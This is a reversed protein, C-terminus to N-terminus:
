RYEGPTEGSDTQENPDGGGEEILVKLCETRGSAAAFHIATAGDQNRRLGCRGECLLCRLCEVHGHNACVHLPTTGRSDGVECLGRDAGLLVRLCDLEGRRAAIHSLSAGNENGMVSRLDLEAQTSAHVIEQLCEAHGNSVAALTPTAARRCEACGQGLNPILLSVCSEVYERDYECEEEDLFEDLEQLVEMGRLEATDMQLVPRRKEAM